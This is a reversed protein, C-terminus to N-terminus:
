RKGLTISQRLHLCDSQPKTFIWVQKDCLPFARGQNLATWPLRSSITYFSYM